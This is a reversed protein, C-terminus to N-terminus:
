NLKLNHFGYCSGQSAAEEVTRQEQQQLRKTLYVLWDQPQLSLRVTTYMHGADFPTLLTAHDRGTRVIQVVQTEKMSGDM